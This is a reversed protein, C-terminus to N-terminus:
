DAFRVSWSKLSGGDGNGIDRVELTWIGNPDTGRFVQLDQDPRFTGSFPPVGQSIAIGSEMDFTTNRFHDGSGGVRKALLFKENNPGVLYLELEGVWTHDINVSVSLDQVRGNVGSVNITSSVVSPEDPSIAFVTGNRNLVGSVVNAQDLPTGTVASKLGCNYKVGPPLPAPGFVWAQCQGNKECAQM